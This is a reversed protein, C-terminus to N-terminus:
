MDITYLNMTLYRKLMIQTPIYVTLEIICGDCDCWSACEYYWVYMMDASRDYMSNRYVIWVFNWRYM